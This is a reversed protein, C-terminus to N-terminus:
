KNSESNLAEQLYKMEVHDKMVVQTKVLGQNFIFDAADQLMKYDEENFGIRIGTKDQAKLNPEVSSAITLANPSISLKSEEVFWENSQATNTRYFDYAESFARLFKVPAEPNENIYNKSMVIVSIVKEEHINRVWGNEEFTAPAPDFGAMADVDGWKTVTLDKKILDGQQDMALNINRVGKIPDLGAEKEVRLAMRQAAAGFPMGVTKGKLQAITKIPSNIPVYLSVRNYMLRGIIVWDPNKSLLTAAPQDATFIVDVNGTLAAENLPAGYTFGKFDGMLGNKKLLDTKNLVQTLQGQTAWPVQWGIRITTLEEPPTKITTNKKSYNAGVYFLIALVAILFILIVNKKM